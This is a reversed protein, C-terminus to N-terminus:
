LSSRPRLTSFLNTSYFLTYTVGERVEFLFELIQPSLKSLGSSNYILRCLFGWGKVWVFRALRYLTKGSVM